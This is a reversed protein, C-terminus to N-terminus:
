RGAQRRARERERAKRADHAAKADKASVIMQALIRM